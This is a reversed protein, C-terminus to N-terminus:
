SIPRRRQVLGEIYCADFQPCRRLRLREDSLMVLADRLRQFLKSCRDLGTLREPEKVTLQVGAVNKHTVFIVADVEHVDLADAETIEFALM